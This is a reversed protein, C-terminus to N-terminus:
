TFFYKISQILVSFTMVGSIALKIGISLLTGFLNGAASKMAEVTSRQAVLDGIISGLILGLIMGIPTFFIGIIMGIVSGFIGQKTAGFKKATWLPLLYDAILIIATIVAIIVLFWVSYPKFAWQLLLLAVYNIPPGPLGPIICGALGAFSLIIAIIILTAEM